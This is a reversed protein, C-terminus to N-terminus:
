GKIGSLDEHINDSKYNNRAEEDHGKSNHRKENHGKDNQRKGHSTLQDELSM